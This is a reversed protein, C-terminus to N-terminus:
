SGTPGWRLDAALRAALARAAPADPALVAVGAPGSRAVAGHLRGRAFTGERPAFSLVMVTVLRHDQEVLLHAAPGDDLACPNAYVVGPLPAGPQAGVADLVQAVEQAPVLDGPQAHPDLAHAYLERQLGPAPVLMLVVLTSAALAAGGALALRPARVPRRRPPAVAVPDEGLLGLAGTMARMQRVLRRCHRCMALHVIIQVRARWGLAGELHDSAHAAVDRCSYMKAM